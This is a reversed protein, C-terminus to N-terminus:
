SKRQQWVKITGDVGGAVIIKGDPSLALSFVRNDESITLHGLEKGMPSYWIKIQGDTSGSYLIKEDPSFIVSKVQALHGEMVLYPNIEAQHNFLEKRLHWLKITGDACGAAVNEGSPSIALSEVSALNGTLLCQMKGTELKWITVRGDGGGSAILEEEEHLAIASIAGLQDYSSEIMSGTEFDWQKVTQDYSGSVLIKSKAAMALGHISGTHGTITQELNLMLQNKKKTILSWIKINQDLSGTALIYPSFSPYNFSAQNVTVTLLGQESALVTDILSGNKLSWVKLNQDWSVSALYQQDYSISLGTVSQEHGNIIHICKWGIKPINDLSFDLSNDALYQSNNIINQKSNQKYIEEIKENIYKSTEELKQIRSHLRCRNLYDIISTISKDLTDLDQQLSAILINDSPPINSSSLKPNHLQQSQQNQEQIQKKIKDLEQSFKGLQFKLSTSLQDAIRFELRFRHYFNFILSIVLFILFLTIKGTILFIILGFISLILSLLEIIELISLFNFNM